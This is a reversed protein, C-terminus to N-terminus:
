VPEILYNQMMGLDEHELIHCHYLYIGAFNEFRMLVQVREGPRVLVVDKLGFDTFGEQLAMAVPSRQGAGLDRNLIKFQVNHVHMPHAMQMMAGMGGMGMSTDNRFEWIESTGLKSIDESAVESMQGFVRGNLMAQGRMMSLRIQKPAAANVAEEALLEPLQSLSSPKESRVPTAESMAFSAIARADGLMVGGEQAATINELRPNYSEAMLHLLDEPSSEAVSLWVDVREGVGISIYRQDRARDILGGDTGIITFPRSDSWSLRYLTSNSGNFLRLRYATRDLQKFYASKGNVLVQQGSFGMMWNHRMPSLHQLQAQLDFTRDQILLALDLDGDPLGITEEEDDNIILLGALGQYVQYATREHPHPHFWYTGARNMVTFEYVYTQGPDIAYMPHGDMRQPINLGHWHVISPEPLQNRFHVRVKQGMRVRIVPIHGSGDLYSLASQPGALVEGTYCWIRTQFGDLLESEAVKAVLEFEIDPEFSTSATAPEMAQHSDAALVPAAAAGIGLASLGRIFSRRAVM